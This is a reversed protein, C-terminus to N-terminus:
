GGGTDLLEVDFVLTAGPPITGDPTGREGYGMDAPIVLQRKEGVKMGQVGQDWGKIVAGEGLRFEFPDNRDVSSDFKKGDSKLWGTYHVKVSDGPKAEAGTGPKLVAYKLGGEGSQYDKEEVPTPAATSTATSEGGIPGASPTTAPSDEPQPGTQEGGCGALALSAVCAGIAMWKM